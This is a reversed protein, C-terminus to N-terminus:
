NALGKPREFMETKLSVGYADVEGPLCQNVAEVECGLVSAAVEIDVGEMPRVDMEIANQTDGEAWVVRKNNEM